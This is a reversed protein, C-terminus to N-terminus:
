ESWIPSTIAGRSYGWNMRDLNLVKDYTHPLRITPYRTGLSLQFGLPAAYTSLGTVGSGGAGPGFTALAAFAGSVGQWEVKEFVDVRMWSRTTATSTWTFTEDDGPIAWQYITRGDQIVDVRGDKGKQVRLRYTVPRNLPVSDGIIAEFVGDGDADATYELDVGQDAGVWTRARRIGEVVDAQSSGAAFVRTTPIGPFTISHRDGGGVAAKKRGANLQAEYFKVAQHNMGGGRAAAAIRIEPNADEGIAALGLGALQDDVDTLSGDKFTPFNWYINWVEVADFTHSLWVHMKAGDCPHNTIVVGGQRHADDYAAQVQANLTAAGLSQDIEPVQQKLGVMGIHVAGGWEEGDLITLNAKYTPDQLQDMTRHDTLAMFDLGQVEGLYFCTGPPDGGQRDADQSYPASHSHLDGKMWSGRSPPPAAPTIAVVTASSGTAGASGSSVPAPGTQTSSTSGAVTSAAGGGGGSGGSGCGAAFLGSSALTLAVTLARSARALHRFDM